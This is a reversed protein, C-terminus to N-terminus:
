QKTYGYYKVEAEERASCAEEFTDFTGLHYTIGEHRISATWRSGQKSKRVGTRGSKNNSKLNINFAQRSLTEWKCNEKSYSKNVDIRELTMGDPREGMDTLFNEFASWESPYSIGRGGYIPYHSNGPNDCRERMGRWSNRTKSSTYGSTHGHTLNLLGIKEATLCGCSQSHGAKLTSGTVVGKNGCDCICNWMSQGTKTNEARSIVTWRNFKEGTLELAKTM